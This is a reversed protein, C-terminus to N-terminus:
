VQYNMTQPIHPEMLTETVFDFFHSKVYGTVELNDTLADAAWASNVGGLLVILATFLLRQLQKKMQKNTLQKTLIADEPGDAGITHNHKIITRKHRGASRKKLDGLRLPSALATV